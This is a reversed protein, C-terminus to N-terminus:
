KSIFCGISVGVNNLAGDRVLAEVVVGDLQGADFADLFLVAGLLDGFHDAFHVDDHDVEVHRWDAEHFVDVARDLGLRFAWDGNYEDGVEHRPEVGGGFFAFGDHLVDDGTGVRQLLVLFVHRLVAGFHILHSCDLREQAARLFERLLLGPLLEVAEHEFVVQVLGRQEFEAPGLHERVRVQVGPPGVGLLLVQEVELVFREGQVALQRVELGLDHPRADHVALAFLDQLLPEFRRPELTRRQRLDPCAGVTQREHVHLVHTFQHGVDDGM